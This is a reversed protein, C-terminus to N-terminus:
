SWKNGDMLIENKWACKNENAVLSDVNKHFYVLTNISDDQVYKKDDFVSLSIENIQSTGLKHKKSQIRKM